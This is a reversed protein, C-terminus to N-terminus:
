CAGQGVPDLGKLLSRVTFPKRIFGLEPGLGKQELRERVLPDTTLLIIRTGELKKKKLEEVLEWGSMGPMTLNLLIIHPRFCSLKELCDWGDRARLLRYKGPYLVEWVLKSIDPDAEVLLVRKRGDEEAKWPMITVEHETRGKGEPL